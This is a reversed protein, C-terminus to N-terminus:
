FWIAGIRFVLDSTSAYTPAGRTVGALFIARSATDAEVMIGLNTLTAMKIGGLDVYDATEVRCVRQVGLIADADSISVASNVTGFDVTVPSSFLDFAVGQDGKDYVTISQIIARGGNARVFDAVSTADFLLDGDAYAAAEVTATFTIVDGPSGVLGLVANDSAATGTLAAGTAADVLVVNLADTAAAPSAGIHRNITM